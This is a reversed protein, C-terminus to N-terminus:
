GNVTEIGTVAQVFGNYSFGDVIPIVFPICYDLPSM